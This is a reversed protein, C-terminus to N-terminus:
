LFVKLTWWFPLTIFGILFGPIRSWQKKEAFYLLGALINQLAFFGYVAIAAVLGEIMTVSTTPRIYGFVSPVHVDVFLVLLFVLIGSVVVSDPVEQYLADYFALFCAIFLAFLM